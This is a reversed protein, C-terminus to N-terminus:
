GARGASTCRLAAFVVASVMFVALPVMWPFGGKGLVPDWADCSIAVSAPTPAVKPRPVFPTFMEGPAAFGYQERAVREIAEVDTLLRDREDRLASNQLKLARLRTKLGAERQLLAALGARRQALMGSLAVSVLTVIALPMWFSKRAVLSM